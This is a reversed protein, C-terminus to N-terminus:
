QPLESVQKFKGRQIVGTGRVNDGTFSELRPVASSNRSVKPAAALSGQNLWEAVFHRGWHQLEASLSGMSIEVALLDSLAHFLGFSPVLCSEKRLEASRPIRGM